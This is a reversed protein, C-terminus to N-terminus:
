HKTQGPSRPAASPFPPAPIAYSAARARISAPDHIHDTREGPKTLQEPQRRVAPDSGHRALWERSFQKLPVELANCTLDSVAARLLWAEVQEEPPPSAEKLRERIREQTASVLPQRAAPIKWHRPADLWRLTFADGSKALQELALRAIAEDDALAQLHVLNYAAAAAVERDAAAKARTQTM